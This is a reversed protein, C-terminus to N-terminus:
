FSVAPASEAGESSKFYAKKEFGFISAVINTPFQRVSVNFKKAAENFEDRAVKIRNETGELQEQLELFNKDAKLEPYAEGVAILRSLASNLGSQAKQFAEIKAESLNDADLSVKTAMNRAEAIERFTTEEHEAYGKVTAVLNPILDARRQYASEVQSWKESVQEEEKVLSNYKGAGWLAVLAAIGLIVLLSILKKGM